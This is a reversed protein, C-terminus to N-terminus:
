LTPLDKGNSQLHRGIKHLLGRSIVTVQAGTDVVTEVPFGEIEMTVRLVSGPAESVNPVLTVIQVADELQHQERAARKRALERELEEESLQELSPGHVM